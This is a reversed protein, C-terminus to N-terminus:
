GDDPDDDYHEVAQLVRVETIAGVRRARRITEGLIGGLLHTMFLMFPRQEGLQQLDYAVAVAKLVNDKGSPRDGWTKVEIM